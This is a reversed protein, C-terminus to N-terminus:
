RAPRRPSSCAACSRPATRTRSRSCRPSRRSRSRRSRARALPARPSRARASAADRWADLAVGASTLALLASCRFRATRTPGSRARDALLWALDRPRGDRLYAAIRHLALAFWLYAFVEARAIMRLTVVFLV